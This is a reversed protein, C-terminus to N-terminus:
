QNDHDPEHSTELRLQAFANKFQPQGPPGAAQRPQPKARATRMWRQWTRDWDLKLGDKGPKAIWYDRFNETESRWDLDPREGHVWEILAESPRWDATLRAGRKQSDRLSSERRGGEEEMQPSKETKKPVPPADDEDLESSRRSLAIYTGFEPPIFHVSKPKKPRQYQCFNRVLGYYRGEHEYQCIINAAELEGLLAVVDTNDAGLLRMKLTIPEWKFAGFDDAETLIGIALLRALPSVSVFEADTFLGPHISRIRAM